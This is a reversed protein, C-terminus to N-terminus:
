GAVESLHQRLAACLAIAEVTQRLALEHGPAQDGWQSFLAELETQKDPTCFQEAVRPTQRQWQSPIKALIAPLNAQYWQWHQARLRPQSLMSKILEFSERPGTSDSLAYARAAASLAADNFAGLAVPLAAAFRPDDINGATDILHRYFEADSDQVAVTLATRYLDSALEGGPEAPKFGTFQMAQESLQQRVAQDKLSLAVFDLLSNKLLQESESAPQELRRLAASYWPLLQARLAEAQAPELLTDLYRSLASLPATVVHRRESGASLEVGTLLLAQAIDGSEFAAVLSDLLAMREATTLADFDALLALWQEASLRWRYYGSGNANPMLWDPCHDTDLVFEPNEPTLLTCEVQSGDAQRYRLCVPINWLKEAKKVAAGLPRYRAQELLVRPAAASPCTLSVDIVPVGPQEVFDRLVRTLRPTGTQEGIANYFQESSAVSDAFTRLYGGLARRFKDAGFYSDLMHIVAQSKSYTIGDYANRIDENRSIPERIARASALSDTRMVQFNRELGNLDHQGDPEFQALVMPTAWTAFGEKLWLDDWWPPTVQNGFWMHALEHAHIGLLGLRAGPSPNDGLLLREERYTIAGSLETAGSPWAPAAVIDLKAFPYPRGLAQEFISIYHPTIDLVYQLEAARGRRAIGRLPVPEARVASAPIPAAELVDFPGVALSLLYTSMPPTPAFRVREFEDALVTRSIEPANGIALYGAPVTLAVNFPAKFGPQDFGPLYKRAQISESKALAYADGQEELKFLGALNQDFDAEYVFRLSVRGAAITRGFGVWAVGSPLVQQYEAQTTHGASTTLVVSSVRLSQGHLWIGPAAERLELEIEVQGSFSDQRPDIRLELRYNLPYAIESLRGAPADDVAAPQFSVSETGASQQNNQECGALACLWLLGIWGRWM